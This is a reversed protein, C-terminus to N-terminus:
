LRNIDIWNTGDSICVNFTGGSTTGCNGVGASPVIIIAGAAAGSSPRTATTVSAIILTSSITVEGSFTADETYTLGGDPLYWAAAFPAAVFLMVVLVAIFKKM